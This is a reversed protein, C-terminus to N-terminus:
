AAYDLFEVVVIGLNEPAIAWGSGVHRYGYTDDFYKESYQIQGM